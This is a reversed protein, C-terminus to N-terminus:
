EGEAGLRERVSVNALALANLRQEVISLREELTRVRAKLRKVKRKLRRLEITDTM